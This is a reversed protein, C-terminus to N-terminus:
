AANSTLAELDAEAKKRRKEFNKSWGEYEDRLSRVVRYANHKQDHGSESLAIDCPSCYFGDGTGGGYIGRSYEVGVRSKCEYCAGKSCNGCAYVWGAERNCYDCFEVEKEVIKKM